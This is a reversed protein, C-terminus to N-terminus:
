RCQKVSLCSSYNNHSRYLYCICMVKPGFPKANSEEQKVATSHLSDGVLIHTVASRESVGVLIHTVASRKSVGVLIHTAASRESVGVLIHTAASRESVGVLIHTVASRESVGVLIHTVASREGVGVLIQTVASREGVGVLIQTVASRESDTQAVETHQDCWCGPCSITGGGSLHSTFTVAWLRLYRHREGGQTISLPNNHKWTPTVHSVSWVSDLQPVQTLSRLAVFCSTTGGGPLNSM